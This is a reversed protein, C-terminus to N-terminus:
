GGGGRSKVSWRQCMLGRDKGRGIVIMSRDLYLLVTVFWCWVVVGVGGVCLLVALARDRVLGIAGIDDILACPVVFGNGM